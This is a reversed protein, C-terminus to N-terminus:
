INSLFEIVVYGSTIAPAGGGATIVINTSNVVINVQNTVAVVDVYPLPYWNTNDTFTGFIRILAVVNNFNINHAFTGAATFTFIKRVGQNRQNSNVYWSEGTITQASTSFNGITRNNVCYAIDPYARNLEVVLPQMDTPFNRTTRLFASNVPSDNINASSTM